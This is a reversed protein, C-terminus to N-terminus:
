ELGPLAETAVAVNRAGAGKALDIAEVARGYSVDAHADFVVTRTGRSALAGRLREPFAEDTLEEANIRLSGTSTVSVVLPGDDASEAQDEPEDPLVVWFSKLLSPTLVMFIILLVLVVDVLPTVNM